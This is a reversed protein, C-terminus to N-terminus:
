TSPGRGMVEWSEKIVHDQLIVHCVLIMMDENDCHRHGDFKALRCILNIAKANFNCCGEILHDQSIVHCGLIM